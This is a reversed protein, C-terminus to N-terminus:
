EQGAVARSFFTAGMLLQSSIYAMLSMPPLPAIEGAHKGSVESPRRLAPTDETAVAKTLLAVEVQQRRRIAMPLVRRLRERARM